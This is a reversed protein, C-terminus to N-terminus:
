MSICTCVILLIHLNKIAQLCTTSRVKCNFPNLYITQTCSLGNANSKPQTQKTLDCALSVIVHMQKDVVHKCAILTKSTMM